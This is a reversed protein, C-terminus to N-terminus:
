AFVIAPAKLEYLSSGLMVPIIKAIIVAKIKNLGPLVAIILAQVYITGTIAIGNIKNPM